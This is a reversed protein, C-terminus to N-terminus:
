QDAHSSLTIAAHYDVALVFIGPCIATRLVTLGRCNSARLDLVTRSSQWDGAIVPEFFMSDPFILGRSNRDLCIKKRVGRFQGVVCTHKFGRFQLPWKIFTSHFVGLCGNKEIFVGVFWFFFHIQLRNM